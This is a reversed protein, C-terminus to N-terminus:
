VKSGAFCVDEENGGSVCCIWSLVGTIYDRIGLVKGFCGVM